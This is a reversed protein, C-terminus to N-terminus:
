EGGKARAEACIRAAVGAIRAQRERGIAGDGRDYTLAWRAGREEAEHEAARADKAVEDREEEAIAARDAADADADAEDEAALQACTCRTNACAVRAEDREKRMRSAEAAMSAAVAADESARAEVAACSRTLRENERELEDIRGHLAALRAREEEARAATRRQRERCARSTRLALELLQEATLNTSTSM